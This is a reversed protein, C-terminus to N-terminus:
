KYGSTLLFMAAVAIGVFLGFSFLFGFYSFIFIKKKVDSFHWQITNVTDDYNVQHPFIQKGINKSIGLFLISLIATIGATVIENEIFEQRSMTASLYFVNVVFIFAASLMMLQYAISSKKVKGDGILGQNV